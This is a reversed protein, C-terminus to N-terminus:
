ASLQSRIEQVDGVANNGVWEELDLHVDTVYDTARVEALKFSGDKSDEIAEYRFLLVM